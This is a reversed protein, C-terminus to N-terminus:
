VCSLFLTITKVGCTSLLNTIGPVNLVRAQPCLDKLDNCNIKYVISLSTKFLKTVLNFSLM